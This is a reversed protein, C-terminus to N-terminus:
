EVQCVWGPVSELLSNVQFVLNGEYLGWLFELQYNVHALCILGNEHDGLFFPIIPHKIIETGTAM